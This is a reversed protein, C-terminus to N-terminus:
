IGLKPQPAVCQTGGRNKCLEWALQQAWFDMAANVDAWKEWSGMIQRTGVRRTAEAWLYAGTNADLIRAEMSGQGTFPPKGAVYTELRGVVRLQPVASTIVNLVPKEHSVQTLAVAVRLTGPGPEDVMEYSKALEAHVLRYFNNALRQGDEQSVHLKSGQARWLTVPDLMVKDYSAWAVGPARYFLDPDDYASPRQELMSYDGLFGSTHVRAQETSACALLGAAMIACLISLLLRPM